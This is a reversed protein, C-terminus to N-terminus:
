VLLTPKGAILFHLRHSTVITGQFSLKGIEGIANAVQNLVTNLELIVPIIIVLQILGNSAQFLTSNGRIIIMESLKFDLASLQLILQILLGFIVLVSKSQM